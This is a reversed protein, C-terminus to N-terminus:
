GPAFIPSPFAIANLGAYLRRPCSQKFLLINCLESESVSKFCLWIHRNQLFSLYHPCRGHQLQDVKWMGKVKMSM